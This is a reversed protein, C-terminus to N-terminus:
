KAKGNNYVELDLAKESKAVLCSIASDGTINVATRIMDLLRDVGIIMAIGEVPLGVQKLVMALTIMGVGPVGATGVSALTATLIVTMYDGLGLPINYAHAIFMTAVGQMIATGDMNITAGLPIVLSAVSNHVGLKNEVTTLTVPISVSSSSTSFAFLMASIMKRFFRIPNLRAFFFLILSNSLLLHIMLVAIVTMFYGLLKTLLDFGAMAFQSSILCFVGLPAVAMIMGILRMFVTNADQFFTALRAGPEKCAGIATGLLLAFIIIQLMNENVMSALPNTPFLNEITDKLSPAAKAIYQTSAVLNSGTGVDFLDTVVLAIVIALATTMLYLVLTKGGVRGLRGSGGLNSVGTVLSLFVIPVVLMKMLAIFIKGGTALIGHTLYSDVMETPPLWNLFLGMVIGLSMGLFINRTLNSPTSNKLAAEVV